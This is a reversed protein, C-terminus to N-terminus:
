SKPPSPRWSRLGPRSPITRLHCRISSSPVVDEEERAVAQRRRLGADRGTVEVDREGRVDSQVRATGNRVRDLDLLVVLHRSEAPIEAVESVEPDQEKSLARHRADGRGARARPSDRHGSSALSGSTGHSSRLRSRRSVRRPDQPDSKKVNSPTRLDPLEVTIPRPLANTWKLWFLPTPVPDPTHKPSEPEGCISSFTLGATTM